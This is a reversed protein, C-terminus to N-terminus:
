TTISYTITAGTASNVITITVAPTTHETLIETNFVASGGDADRTTAPPCEVKLWSQGLVTITSGVPAKIRGSAKSSPPSSTLVISTNSISLQNIDVVSITADIMTINVNTVSNPDAASKFGITYTEGAAAQDTTEITYINNNGKTVTVKTSNENVFEGAVGNPSTMRVQIQRKGTAGSTGVYMNANVSGDPQVVPAPNIGQDFSPLVSATVLNVPAKELTIVVTSTQNDDAANKLTVTVPGDGITTVDNITLEYTSTLGERAVEKATMGAPADVTLGEFNNAKVRIMSGNAKKMTATIAMPDTADVTNEMNHGGADTMAPKGPTAFFTLVPQLDPDLSATENIFRLSVPEAGSIDGNFTTINFTTYTIGDKVEYSAETLTEVTLWGDGPSAVKTAPATAVAKEVSTPGSAAMVIKFTKNAAVRYQTIDGATLAVPKDIDPTEGFLTAATYSPADNGPKVNIGGDSIWDEIDFTAKITTSTVDLIRLTYRNNREIALPTVVGGDGTKQFPVTYEAPREEGTSGVKYTGKVLLVCKDTALSPNTYIASETLDRNANPLATYDVEHYTMLLPSTTLEGEAVVTPATNWLPATKRGQVIAISKITLNSTITTNDIDFRAVTRLLDINIKSVSGVIKTKGQGTMTLSPTINADGALVKSYTALFATETTADTPTPNTGDFATAANLTLGTTGNEGYLADAPNAILFLKLYSLNLADTPFISAKKKTGADQLSFTKADKDDAAASTWTERYYYTGDAKDSAFVYISLNDIKNESDSAIAKSYEVGEGKGALEIQIESILGTAPSEGTDDNNTCATGLTMLAALLMLSKKKMNM